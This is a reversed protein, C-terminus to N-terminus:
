CGRSYFWAVPSGSEGYAPIWGRSLVKEPGGDCGNSSIVEVELWLSSAIRAAALVNVAQERPRADGSYSLRHPIGAGIHPWVFRNWDGTLYSLRNPLLKELPWYTGAADPALWAFQENRLQVKYWGDVLAFVLAARSEYSAERYKLDDYRGVVAAIKSEFSAAIFLKVAEAHSFASVDLLGIVSTSMPDNPTPEVAAVRQLADLGALATLQSVVFRAPVEDFGHTVGDTSRHIRTGNCSTLWAAEQEDDHEAFVVYVAGPQEAVSCSATSTHSVYPARVSGPQSSKYPEGHVKFRFEQTGDSFPRVQMLTGVFVEDALQYYESLTRQACRCADAPHSFTALLVLTILQRM